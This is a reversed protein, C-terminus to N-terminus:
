WLDQCCGVAQVEPRLLQDLCVLMSLIVNGDVPLGVNLVLERCVWPSSILDVLYWRRGIAEMMWMCFLWSLGTGVFTSFSLYARRAEEHPERCPPHNRAPDQLAWSFRGSGREKWFFVRGIDFLGISSQCDLPGRHHVEM